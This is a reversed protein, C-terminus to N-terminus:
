ILGFELLCKICNTELSNPDIKYIRRVNANIGELIGNMNNDIKITYKLKEQISIYPNISNILKVLNEGSSISGIFDDSCSIFKPTFNYHKNWFELPINLMDKSFDTSYLCFGGSNDILKSIQFFNDSINMLSPNNILTNNIQKKYLELIVDTEKKVDKINHYFSINSNSLLENIIINKNEGLSTELFNNPTFSKLLFKFNHNNNKVTLLPSTPYMFNDPFFSSFTNKLATKCVINNRDCICGFLNMVVYYNPKSIQM